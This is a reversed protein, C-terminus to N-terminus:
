NRSACSSSARRRSISFSFCSSSYRLAASPRAASAAAFGVNLALVVDLHLQLRQELRHVPIAIAPERELPQERVGFVGRHRDGGGGRRRATPRRRRRRGARGDASCSCAACSASRASCVAPSAPADPCRQPHCRTTASSWFFASASASARGTDVPRRRQRRGLDGLSVTEGFRLRLNSFTSLCIAGSARPRFAGARFARRTGSACRPRASARRRASRASARSRSAKLRAVLAQQCLFFVRLDRRVQLATLDALLELNEIGARMGSRGVLGFRGCSCDM